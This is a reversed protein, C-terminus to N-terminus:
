VVRAKLVMANSGLDCKGNMICDGRPGFANYMDDSLLSASTELVLM